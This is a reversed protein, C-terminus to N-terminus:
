CIYFICKHVFEINFQLHYHVIYFKEKNYSTQMNCITFANHILSKCHKVKLHNRWCQYENIFFGQISGPINTFHFINEWCTIFLYINYKYMNHFINVQDLPKKEREKGKKQFYINLFWGYIFVGQLYKRTSSRSSFDLYLINLKLIDM